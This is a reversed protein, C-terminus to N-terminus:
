GSSRPRIRNHPHLPSRSDNRAGKHMQISYLAILGFLCAGVAWWPLFYALTCGTIFAIFLKM